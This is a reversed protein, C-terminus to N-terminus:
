IRVIDIITFIVRPVGQMYIDPNLKSRIGNHSTLVLNEFKFRVRRDNAKGIELPGAYGQYSCYKRASFLRLSIKLREPTQLPAFYLQYHLGTHV